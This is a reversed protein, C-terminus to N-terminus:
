LPVRCPELRARGQRAADLSMHFRVRNQLECYAFSHVLNVSVVVGFAGPEGLLFADGAAVPVDPVAAPVQSM